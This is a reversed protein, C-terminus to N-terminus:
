RAGNTLATEKTINVKESHLEEVNSAILVGKANYWPGTGIRERAHRTPHGASGNESLYARWIKPGAGAASALKQCHQDAGNLGGLNAGRGPGASTLFFSMSNAAPTQGQAPAPPPTVVVTLLPIAAALYRTTM